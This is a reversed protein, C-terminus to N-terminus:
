RQPGYEKLIMLAEGDDVKVVGGARVERSAWITTKGTSIELTVKMCEIESGAVAIKEKRVGPQKKFDIAGKEGLFVERSDIESIGGGLMTTVEYFVNQSGREVVRYTVDYTEDDTTKSYTVWDGPEAERWLHAMLNEMTLNVITNASVPEKVQETKEGCSWMGLVALATVLRIMLRM